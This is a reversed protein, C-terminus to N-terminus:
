AKLYSVPEFHLGSHQLEIRFGCFPRRSLHMLCMHKASPMVTSQPYSLDLQPSYTAALCASGVGSLVCASARPPYLFLLGQHWDSCVTAKAIHKRCRRLWFLFAICRDTRCGNSVALQMCLQEWTGGPYM